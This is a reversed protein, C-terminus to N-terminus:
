PRTESDTGIAPEGDVAPAEVVVEYRGLLQQYIAENAEQRLEHERDASVRARVAAFPLVQAEHHSDIRVLHLGYGSSVPGSWVGPKLVEVEAAFDRGFLMEVEQITVERYIPDLLKADGLRSADAAGARLSALAVRAEEEVAPGRRDADFYVQTFTLRQPQAYRELNAEYYAVLDSEAPDGAVALDLTVFEFKQRLLRRIVTDDRDLGLALAERYLVEERVYESILERMEDPTPDRQWRKEWLNSLREYDSASVVIREVTVSEDPDSVVAFGGFIAAGILLFHV